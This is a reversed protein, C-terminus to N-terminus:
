GCLRRSTASDGRSRPAGGAGNFGLSGRMAGAMRAPANAQRPYGPADRTGRSPFDSKRIVQGIEDLARRAQEVLAVEQNAFCSSEPSDDDGGAEPEWARQHLVVEDVLQPQLDERDHEPDALAEEGLDAVLFGHAEEVGPGNLAADGVEGVLGDSVGLARRVAGANRLLDSARGIGLPCGPSRSEVGRVRSVRHIQLLGPNQRVGTSSDPLKGDEARVVHRLDDVRNGAAVANRAPGNEM